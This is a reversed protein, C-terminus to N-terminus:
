HRIKASSDLTFRRMSRKLNEERPTNPAFVARAEFATNFGPLPAWRASVDFTAPRSSLRPSRRDTSSAPPPPQPSGSSRSTPRTRSSPPPPYTHAPPAPSSQPTASSRSRPMSASAVARSRRSFVRRHCQTDADVDAPGEGVDGREIRILALEDGNALVEGIRRLRGGDHRGDGGV